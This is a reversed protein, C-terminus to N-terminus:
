KGDIMSATVPGTHHVAAAWAEQPKGQFTIAILDALGQEFIGGVRREWGLARAGHRTAMRVVTEPSVEPHRAAFTQMETFMNLEPKVRRVVMMSALSDTGLCVNVGAAHLKQFPFPEHGFYAHSQPCHVVSSGSEALAKIDEDNLYNAHIALFSKGLLGYRRAQQVPTRGTCDSMDRQRKLWDFMPGRQAAYMQQEDGSEALHMTVRWKRKRALVATQRLLLPTTSYLAHPSLGVSGRAPALSEIKHAAERLIASPKRQSKVGTMELFSFVRLPTSSWVEPLLEPVAEIDAVTTTGTRTLMNAGRLWAQAYETYSAGAKLALLGKIWDPFQKQPPLGTMDTYDLHCHSNILGPLLIVEGLDVPATPARGALDKWSGVAVIRNQSLLVAGNEIPPTSIPLITRARLLM